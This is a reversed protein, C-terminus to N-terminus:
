YVILAHNERKGTIFEIQSHAFILTTLSNIVSIYRNLNILVKGVNTSSLEFSCSHHKSRSPKSM